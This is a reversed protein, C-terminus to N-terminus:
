VIAVLSSWVLVGLWFRKLDNAVPATPAVWDGSWQLAKGMWVVPHWAAPPEGWRYDILLALPVAFAAVYWGGFFAMPILTEM